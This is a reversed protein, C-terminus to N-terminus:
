ALFHPIFTELAVSKSRSDMSLWLEGENGCGNNTITSLPFSGVGLVM